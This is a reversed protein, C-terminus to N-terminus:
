EVYLDIIKDGSVEDEVYNYECHLFLGCAVGDVVLEMKSELFRETYDYYFRGTYDKKQIISFHGGYSTLTADIIEQLGKDLCGNKILEDYQKLAISNAIRISHEFLLNEIKKMDFIIHKNLCFARVDDEFKNYDLKAKNKIAKVSKLLNGIILSKKANIGAKTYERYDIQFSISAFSYQPEVVKTEKWLGKKLENEPAVIPVIGISKIIESYEKNSFFQSIERCMQYIEDDIGYIKTYFAPSNINLEM